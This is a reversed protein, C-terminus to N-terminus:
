RYCDKFLQRHFHHKRNQLEPATAHRRHRHGLKVRNEIVGGLLMLDHDNLESFRDIFSSIKMRISNAARDM